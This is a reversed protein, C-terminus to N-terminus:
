GFAAIARLLDTNKFTNFHYYSGGLARALSRMTPSPHRLPRTEITLSSIGDKGILRGIRLLEDIIESQAVQEDYPVNAEGDSLIVLLPRIQRDKRRETKILQWGQMLGHAFPTAGGVPLSYLSKQAMALSTTPHLVTKASEDCFSVLGVKFRKQYAQALVGLVTGKAAKIRSQAGDEGMSESCDVVFVVLSRISRKYIKKHLDDASISIDSAGGESGHRLVASRVTADVALDYSHEAKQIPAARVYRGNM